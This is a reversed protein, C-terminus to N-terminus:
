RGEDCEEVPAPTRRETRRRPRRVRSTSVNSASDDPWVESVADADKSSWRVDDESEWLVGGGLGPSNFPRGVGPSGSAMDFSPRTGSWLQRRAQAALSLGAGRERLAKRVMEARKHLTEFADELAEMSLYIDREVEALVAIETEEDHSVPPGPGSGPGLAPSGVNIRSPTTNRPVDAPSMTTSRVRDAPSLSRLGTSDHQWPTAASSRPPSAISAFDDAGGWLFGDFRGSTLIDWESSNVAALTALVQHMAPYKVLYAASEPDRPAVTLRYLRQLALATRSLLPVVEEETPQNSMPGAASPSRLGLIESFDDRETQKLHTLIAFTLTEDDIGQPPATPNILQRALWRDVAEKKKKTQRRYHDRFESPVDADVSAPRPPQLKANSVAEVLADPGDGSAFPRGMGEFDFPPWPPLSKRGSVWELVDGWGLGQHFDDVSDSHQCFPCICLESSIDRAFIAELRDLLRRAISRYGTAVALSGNREVVTEYHRLLANYPAFAHEVLDTPATGPPYGTTGDHRAGASPHSLPPPRGVDLFRRPVHHPLGGHHLLYDVRPPNVSLTPPPPPPPPQPSRGPGYLFDSPKGETAHEALRTSNHEGPTQPVTGTTETTGVNYVSSTAARAAELATPRRTRPLVETVSTGESGLISGDEFSPFM